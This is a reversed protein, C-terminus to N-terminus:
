PSALLSISSTLQQHFPFVGRNTKIRLLLDSSGHTQLLRGTRQELFLTDRATGNGLVTVQNTPDLQQTLIRLAATGLVRVAQQGQWVTDGILSYQRTMRTNSFQKAM